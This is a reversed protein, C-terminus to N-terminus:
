ARRHHSPQRPRWASLGERSPNCRFWRPGRAALTLTLCPRCPRRAAVSYRFWCPGRAALTLTPYRRPPRHRHLLHRRHHPRHHHGRRRPLPTRVGRPSGRRRHPQVLQHHPRLLRPPAHVPQRLRLVVRRPPRGPLLRGLLRPQFRRLARGEPLRRAGAHLHRSRRRRCCAPLM